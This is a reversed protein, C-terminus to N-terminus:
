FGDTPSIGFQAEIRALEELIQQKSPNENQEFFERWAANYDPHIGDPTLRHLGRPLRMTYDEINIGAKAFQPGFQRPLRHHNEEEDGYFAPAVNTGPPKRPPCM